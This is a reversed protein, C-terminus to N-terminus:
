PCRTSWEWRWSGIHAIRQSDALLQQSTRLNEETQMRETIDRVFCLVEGQGVPLYRAEYHHLNDQLTLQYEVSQVEGTGLALDLTEKLRQGLPSPLVDLLTRGIFQEPPVLPIAGKAAHYGIHTGDSRLRFIQDPVAELHYLQDREARLHRVEQILQERSKAHDDM